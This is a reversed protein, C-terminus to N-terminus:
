DVGPLRPQTLHDYPDPVPQTRRATRIEHWITRLEDSPQYHRGRKQGVAVLLGAKTMASLDRTAMADSVPEGSSSQTIKIYLSRRLRWGRAADSLAGVTRDFQRLKEIQQGRM